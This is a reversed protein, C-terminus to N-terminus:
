NAGHDSGKETLVSRGIVEWENPNSLHVTRVAIAYTGYNATVVYSDKDMRHRIIDGPQLAENKLQAILDEANIRITAKTSAM